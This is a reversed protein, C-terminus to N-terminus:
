LNFGVCADEQCKACAVLNIVYERQTERQIPSLEHSIIKLVKFSLVSLLNMCGADKEFVKKMCLLYFSHFFKFMQWNRCVVFFVVYVFAYINYEFVYYTDLFIFSSSSSFLKKTQQKHQIFSQFLFSFQNNHSEPKERLLENTEKKKARHKTRYYPFPSISTLFQHVVTEDLYGTLM